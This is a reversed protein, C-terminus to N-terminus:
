LNYRTKINIDTFIFEGEPEKGDILMETLIFLPKYGQMYGNQDILFEATNNCLLKKNYPTDDYIITHPNNELKLNKFAKDIGAQGASVLFIGTIGSISEMTSEIIKCVEEEDDFSCQVGAIELKPHEKKIVEIFGDVRSNNVNNNFSGTIILVKGLDNTLISMLGAATRGSQRNDMGVYSIRKTGVIDSNFTVVPIQKKEVIWNIKKRILDSDVPMIALGNIKRALLNDIAKLQKEEDVVLIEERLVEVGTVSLIETAKLIGSNIKTMFPSKALQTIVGIKIPVSSSRGKRPKHIYGLETCAQIIRICVDESVKGRKNLVRDVTGRSVGVRDAIDQITVKM